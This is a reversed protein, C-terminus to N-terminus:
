GIRPIPPTPINVGSVSPISSVSPTSIGSVSPTSIGSVSPLAPVSPVSPIDPIGAAKFNPISPVSIPKPLIPTYKSFDPANAAAKLKAANSSAMNNLKKVANMSVGKVGSNIANLVQDKKASISSAVSQLKSILSTPSKISEVEFGGPIGVGTKVDIKTAPKLKIISKTLSSVAPASFSPIASPLAPISPISPTNLGSTLSTTNIPLAM